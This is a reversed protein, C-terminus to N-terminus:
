QRSFFKKKQASRRWCNLGGGVWPFKGKSRLLVRDDLKVSRGVKKMGRQGIHLFLGRGGGELTSFSAARRTYAAVERDGLDSFSLHILRGKKRKLSFLNGGKMPVNWIGRLTKM